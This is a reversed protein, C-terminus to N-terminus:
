LLDKLESTINKREKNTIKNELKTMLFLVYNIREKIDSKFNRNMFEIFNDESPSKNSSILVYYLQDETLSDYKKIGRKKALKKLEDISLGYIKIADDLESNTFMTRKNLKKFISKLKKNVNYRNVTKLLAKNLLQKLNIQVIKEAKKLLKKRSIITSNVM